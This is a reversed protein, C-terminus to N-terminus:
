LIGFARLDRVIAIFAKSLNDKTFPEYVKPAINNPFETGEELLYTIRNTLIEQAMGIEHIVNQRPHFYETGQLKDDGTALIIAASCTRMYALVKDDLSMGQSSKEMVIVPIQGLARIFDRLLNLAESEKGHSIFINAPATIKKPSEQSDPFASALVTELYSILRTGSNVIQVQHQVWLLRDGGFSSGSSIGPAYTELNSDALTQKIDKYIKRYDERTEYDALEMGITAVNRIFAKLAALKTKLLKAKELDM